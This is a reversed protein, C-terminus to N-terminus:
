IKSKFSERCLILKGTEQYYFFSLAIRFLNQLMKFFLERKQNDGFGFGFRRFEGGDKKDLTTLLKTKREGTRENELPAGNGRMPGIGLTTQKPQFLCDAKRM